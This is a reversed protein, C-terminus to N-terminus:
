MLHLGLLYAKKMKWYELTLMVKKYTPSWQTKGMCLKRCTNEAKEMKICLLRDIDEYETQQAMTMPDTALQHLTNM